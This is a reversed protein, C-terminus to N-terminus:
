QLLHMFLYVFITKPLVAYEFFCVIYGDIIFYKWISFLLLHFVEYIKRLPHSLASILSKCVLPFHLHNIQNSFLGLLLPPASSATLALLVSCLQSKQFFHSLILCVCFSESQSKLSCILNFSCSDLVQITKWNSSSVALRLDSVLITQYLLSEDQGWYSIFLLFISSNTKSLYLM